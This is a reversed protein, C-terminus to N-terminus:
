LVFSLVIIRHSTPLLCSSRRCKFNYTCSQCFSFKEFINASPLRVQVQSGNSLPYVMRPSLPDSTLLYPKGVLLPQLYTSVIGELLKNEEKFSVFESSSFHLQLFKVRLGNTIAFNLYESLDDLYDRLLLRNLTVNIGADRAKIIGKLVEHVMSCGTIQKYTNPVITHLSVRVKNVLGRIQPIFSELLSGNTTVNVQFGRDRLSAMLDHIRYSGDRYIFPEEGALDIKKPQVIGGHCQAQYFADAIDTFRKLPINM